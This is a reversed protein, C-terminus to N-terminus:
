SFLDLFSISFLSRSFLDLSSISLFSRSFLDLFSISLLSQPFLDLSSISLLSLGIERLKFFRDPSAILLDVGNKELLLRKQISIRSDGGLICGSRIPWKSTVILQKTLRFIQLGLERSPVLILARPRKPRRLVNRNEDGEEKIKKKMLSKEKILRKKEKKKMKIGKRRANAATQTSGDSVLITSSKDDPFTEHNQDGEDDEEDEWEEEEGEEGEEEEDEEEEERERRSKLYQLVEEEEENEEEDERTFRPNREQNYASIERERKLAINEITRESDDSILLDEADREDASLDNTQTVRISAAQRAKLFEEEDRHLLELIPLLYALTKGTGTQASLIASSGKLLKPIALQQIPTPSTIGSAKIGGTLRKDLGLKVFAKAPKSSLDEM